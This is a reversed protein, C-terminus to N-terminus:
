ICPESLKSRHRSIIPIRLADDLMQEDGIDRFAVAAELISGVVDFVM